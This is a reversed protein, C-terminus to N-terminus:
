AEAIDIRKTLYPVVFLAFLITSIVASGVCWNCIAKIVFLELYTFYVSFAFGSLTMLLLVVFLFKQKRLMAAASVLFVGLYFIVGYLPVPLSFMESYKSYRVVECGNSSCPLPMSSSYMYLLYGSVLLGLLSFIVSLRYILSSKM